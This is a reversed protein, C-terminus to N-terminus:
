AIMTRFPCQKEALGSAEEFVKLWEKGRASYSSRKRTGGGTGTRGIVVVM